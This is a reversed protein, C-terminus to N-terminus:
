IGISLPLEESCGKGAALTRARLYSSWNEEGEVQLFHTQMHGTKRKADFEIKERM